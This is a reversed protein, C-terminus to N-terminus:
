IVQLLLQNTGLAPTRTKPLQNTGLVPTRTKSVSYKSNSNIRGWLPLAPKPSLTSPILTSEDWFSLATRLPIIKVFPRSCAFDVLSASVNTPTICIRRSCRGGDARM